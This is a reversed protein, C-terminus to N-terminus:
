AGDTTFTRMVQGGREGVHLVLGPGSVWGADIPSAVDPGHRRHCGRSPAIPRTVAHSTDRRVPTRGRRRSRTDPVPVPRGIPEPAVPHIDELPMEQM